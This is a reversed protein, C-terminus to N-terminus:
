MEIFMETIVIFTGCRMVKAGGGQDLAYIVEEKTEEYTDEVKSMWLEHVFYHRYSNQVFLDSWVVRDSESWCVLVPNLGWM